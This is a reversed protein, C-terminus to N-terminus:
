TGTMRERLALVDKMVSGSGFFDTLRRYADYLTRYAPLNEERPTYVTTGATTMHQVAFQPTEYIGGATAALVAAGLAPCQNSSAARIPRELIDAYLQMMVANKGAIGGCAVIEGAHLGAAELTEVVLRAGFAASEMLAHYQEAPTTHLTLGLMMGTLRDDVLPTRQGNWWDLALLGSEGPKLAASQATLLQHVTVGQREAASTIAAPVSNHVFWDLMDGVCAQGAEYACLGPLIADKAAGCIGPVATEQESLLIHCASTGLIMMLRGPQTIGSGLIGAHADIIGSAVVTDTTLGLRAAWDPTLHGVAEWPAAMEGRLKGPVLDCLRADLGTFFRQEPYGADPSWFSKFGACCTNRRLKGTLTLALWDVAELILDCDRYIEPAEELLQLVKPLMWQSSVKGGYRAPLAPYEQKAWNEIRRAQHIAGHHKWMKVYAHPAGSYAQTKCLPTGDGLAPLITCSTVDCGIAAVDKGEVGTERLLPPITEELVKLYDAPDQLAWGPGLDKGGPLATMVGHPYRYEKQGLVRGAATEVLVARGSLTGFDVGIVYQQKSM